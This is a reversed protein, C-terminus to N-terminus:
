ALNKVAFDWNILNAIVADVHDKRRNQYDLYYAHEWVDITLLPKMGRVLPNDADDTTVVKLKDRDRVLWAYGSGFQGTAAKAFQSNFEEVSGFDATIAKLLEEPPTGGGAPRMSQWYFNHNWIQAANNFIDREIGTKGATRTIIEELPLNEYTTGRILKNTKDVYGQHHKGYHFSLTTSSIHPELANGPYPLPPLSFRPKEEAAESDPLIKGMTAILAAGASAALFGRRTIIPAGSKESDM